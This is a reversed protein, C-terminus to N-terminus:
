DRADWEENREEATEMAHEAAQRSTYPGMRNRGACVMGEEATRHKLCYYWEGPKVAEKKAKFLAM